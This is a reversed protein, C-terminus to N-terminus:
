GELRHAINNRLSNIELILYWISNTNKRLAYGRTVHVKQVFSLRADRLHEAHFLMLTLINDLAGEIVLHGKLIVQALADVSGMEENLADLYKTQHDPLFFGPVNCRGVNM